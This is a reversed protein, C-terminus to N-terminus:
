AQLCAQPQAVAVECIVALQTLVAHLWAVSVTVWDSMGQIGAMLLQDSVAYVESSSLPRSSGACMALWVACGIM